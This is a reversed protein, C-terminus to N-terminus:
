RSPKVGSVPCFLQAIKEPRLIGQEVLARDAREVMFRGQNGRICEGERRGAVAAHLAMDADEFAKRAELFLERARDSRGRLAAKQAKVLAVLGPVHPMAVQELTKGAETAEKQMSAVPGVGDRAAALAARARLFYAECALLQMRLVLSSELASWGAKMRAYAKGGDGEYLEINTESILCSYDTLDFNGSPSAQESAAQVERRARHAEDAALWVVTVYPFTRYTTAVYRNDVAAAQAISRRMNQSVERIRGQNSIAEVRILRCTNIEWAVGTCQTTFVELAADMEDEARRWQGRLYAAFGHSMRVLGEADPRELGEATRELLRLMRQTREESREMGGVLVGESALARVARMRDGAALSVSLMRSGFYAARIFDVMALGTALSWCVDIQQKLKRPVQKGPKDEFKVGSLAFRARMLAVARMAQGSNKPYNLGVQKLMEKLLDLGRETHGCTLYQEAARRRLEFGQDGGCASSASLYCEAALAGRGASALSEARWAEIQWRKASGEPELELAQGYLTAAREFAMSTFAHQAAARAHRAAQETEGAAVLHVVLAEAEPEPRARLVRVLALHHGRAVEPALHQSVAARVRDHYIEVHNGDGMSSRLLRQSLLLDVQRDDGAEGGAAENAVSMELPGAAVVAVELLRRAAAPLASIREFLVRELRLHRMPTADASGVPQDWGRGEADRQALEYVFLPDGGSELAVLHARTRIEDPEAKPHTETILAEALGEAEGLALPALQLRTVALGRPAQELAGIVDLLPSAARDEVRYSGLVLIPPPEPPAFVYSLLEGSDADGWQLDDLFIVLTTRRVLRETLSRLVDFARRRLEHTAGFGRTPDPMGSIAEVRGLIPFLRVLLPADEPLIRRAEDFPLRRLYRSLADIIGDIGKFPMLEREHCRGSLVAVGEDLALQDLFRRILTSKGVGSRGEVLVVQAQGSRAKRLASQMQELERARGVFHGPLNVPLSVSLPAEEQMPRGLQQLIQPGTPRDAPNKQLLATCLADLHEPVDPVIDRPRPPETQQKDMLVRFMTGKFPLRGTLAEYLIIGLSYWDSAPTLADGAGQEPSMYAVTGCVMGQVTSRVLYRDYVPTVLGFDLLVVRGTETVLANSPKIDRHLRGTDHLAMVAETLQGMAPGLRDLDLERVSSFYQGKPTTGPGSVTPLNVPDPPVGGAPETAEEDGIPLSVHAGSAANWAASSSPQSPHPEEESVRPPRPGHLWNLLDVGDVLEMTFFWVEDECVLEHLKVLNPHAVDSLSRFEQKIRYIGDADFRNLTKVAVQRGRLRDVAEYVVGMGGEGVKRVIEYRETGTFVRGTKVGAWGGTSPNSPSAM